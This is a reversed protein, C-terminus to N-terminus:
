QATRLFHRLTNKSFIKSVFNDACAAAVINKNKHKAAYTVSVSGNVGIASIVPM